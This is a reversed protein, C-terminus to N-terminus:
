ILRRSLVFGAAVAVVSVAGVVLLLPWSNGDSGDRRPASTLLEVVGGVAQASAGPTTPAPAATTPAPAATTPAPAATTPAPAPTTPAPAATTPAPAPTTPAPPPTTPAPPPTTPAPAPTTPPTPTPSGPGSDPVGDCDTDLPSCNTYLIDYDTGIGSGIDPETSYWVTVWNGGGDTTIQPETDAGADSPANTNLAAPATWNQGNNASLAVLIDFDTGIGGGVNPEGSQWVAVWNGAGDTTVQPATDDGSDSAANTNLVAPATWNQGSNTSRTVLVDWDGGIGGGVNPETSQWVTVWNGGGDTTVQPFTDYGSDGSANTNLAAPTTWNQGNNTSRAVVIDYETNLVGGVSPEDSVWVAVWNGGGDTTVQPLQEAASDGSANTNLAAPATWNQGNDTSRAVLIDNDIGIGGGVNPETSQWVAVWNGGTDTAIQPYDDGGSDGAANTNLAAPATWTQGDTSLAVLIDYDTGIGGGINPETSQWVAVWNGGGDTTVQPRLDDGSDAAANTNLAAPATWNQGNDTSRAVLIDYDPGDISQWVAVWNGAGDTTVQPKTDGASDSAANTNLAAPSPTVARVRHTGTSLVFPAVM